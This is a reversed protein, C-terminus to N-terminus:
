QDRYSVVCQIPGGITEGTLVLRVPRYSVSLPFRFADVPLSKYLTRKAHRLLQSLVQLLTAIPAAATDVM